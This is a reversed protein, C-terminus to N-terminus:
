LKEIAKVEADISNCLADLMGLLSDGVRRTNKSATKKVEAKKEVPDPVLRLHSAKNKKNQM